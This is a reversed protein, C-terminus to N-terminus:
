LVVTDAVEIGEHVFDEDFLYLTTGEPARLAAFAGEFGAFGLLRFGHRECAAELAPRDRCVFCLSPGSLAISESLGLAIGGADFRMHLTPEERITTVVPAIPAWFRAAHMADKVPLTLEFWRGCLSDGAEEGAGSHTRAELMILTHRDYDSLHLENFLDEGLQMKTFEFGHDTMSRAHRALEHQVFAIAPSDFERDHLGINLEGDSVVAYKHPWIDGSPVEEFGLLKYFHLSDLIDPAQVSLELFRGIGSV